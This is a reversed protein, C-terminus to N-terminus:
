KLECNEEFHDSQYPSTEYFFKCSMLRIFEYFVVFDDYNDNTNNESLIVIKAEFAFKFIERFEAKIYRYTETQVSFYTFNSNEHAM